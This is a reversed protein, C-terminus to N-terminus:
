NRLAVGPLTNLVEPAHPLQPVQASSQEADAPRKCTSRPQDPRLRQRQPLVRATPRQHERQHWAGVACAPQRLLDEGEAEAADDIVLSPNGHQDEPPLENLGVQVPGKWQGTQHNVSWIFPEDEATASLAIYTKGRFSQMHVHKAYNHGFVVDTFPPPADDAGAAAATAGNVGLVLVFTFAALLSFRGPRANM